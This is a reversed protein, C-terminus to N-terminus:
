PTWCWRYGDPEITCARGTRANVVTTGGYVPPTAYAPGVAVPPAVVAPPAVVVPATSYTPAPAVYVPAPEAVFVQAHTVAPALLVLAAAAALARM